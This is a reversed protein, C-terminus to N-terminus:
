RGADAGHAGAGRKRPQFFASIGQAFREPGPAAACAELAALTWAATLILCLWIRMRRKM